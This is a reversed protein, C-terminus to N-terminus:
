GLLSLAEVFAQTAQLDLPATRYAAGAVWRGELRFGAVSGWRALHELFHDRGINPIRNDDPVHYRFHRFIDDAALINGERATLHRILYHVSYGYPYISSPSVGGMRALESTLSRWPSPSPAKLATSAFPEVEDEEDWDDYSFEM